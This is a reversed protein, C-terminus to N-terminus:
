DLCVLWLLYKIIPVIVGAGTQVLEGHGGEVVVGLDARAPREEPHLVPLAVPAAPRPVVQQQHSPLVILGGSPGAFSPYSAGSVM